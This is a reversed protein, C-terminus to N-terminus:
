EIDVPYIIYSICLLDGSNISGNRGIKWNIQKKGYEEQAFEKAKEISLFPKEYNIETHETGMPGGLGSLDLSRLMHATM